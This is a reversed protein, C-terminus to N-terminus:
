SQVQYEPHKALWAKFLKGNDAFLEEGFQAMLATMVAVPLSAAHQFEEPNMRRNWTWDRSGSSRRMEAITEMAQPTTVGADVLRQGGLAWDVEWEGRLLLNPPAELAVEGCDAAPEGPEEDVGEV